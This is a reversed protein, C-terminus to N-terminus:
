KKASITRSKAWQTGLAIAIAVTVYFLVQIGAPHADYGVLGHLVAGAPSENPMFNSFDWLPASLSPLLDAQVLFRAAQAAMGAALLIVLVSIVSFFWRVPIRLLGMYLALGAAAGGALGLAGGGIMEVLSTTGTVSIGYLFLVTEAGERLVAVAVVVLLISLSQRGGRIAGGLSRAQQSIAQGRSAMWMSHWALMVVAAGLICANFLEQGIGDAFQAIAGMSAAIIASGLLGLMAGGFLWRGRAPIGRTAAAVIGIVLAAELVERFIILSTAFM